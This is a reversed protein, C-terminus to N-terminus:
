TTGRRYPSTGLLSILCYRLPWSIMNVWRGCRRNWLLNGVRLTMLQNPNKTNSRPSRRHGCLRCQKSLFEVEELLEGQEWCADMRYSAARRQFREGIEWPEDLPNFLARPLSQTRQRYYM